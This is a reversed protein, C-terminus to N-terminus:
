YNQGNLIRKRTSSPLEGIYKRYDSAFQGLHWFGNAMAIEQVSEKNIPDNLNKYVRMIKLNKIYKVPSIGFRKKFQYQLYRESRQSSEYLNHLQITEYTPVSRIRQLFIDIESLNEDTRKSGSNGFTKLSDLILLLLDLEEYYSDFDASAARKNILAMTQDRIKRLMDQSVEWVFEGKLQEETYSCSMILCATQVIEETFSVTYIRFTENTISYLEGNPPFLSIMNGKLEYSRWFYNVLSDKPIVFTYYGDPTSGRQEVRNDFVAEGIITHKLNMQTIQSTFNGSQLPIFDLDWGKISSIMQDLDEFKKRFYM